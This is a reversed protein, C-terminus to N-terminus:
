HYFDSILLILIFISVVFVCLALRYKKELLSFIFFSNRRCVIGHKGGHAAELPFFHPSVEM